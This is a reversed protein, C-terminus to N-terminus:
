RNLTMATLATPWLKGLLFETRYLVLPAPSSCRQSTVTGELRSRTLSQDVSQPLVVCLSPTTDCFFM